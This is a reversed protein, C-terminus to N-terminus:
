AIGTNGSTIDVITHVGPKIIGEQEAVEIIEKAIRDKVSLGPNTFEMKCVVEAVREEKFLKNIRVLKTQGICSSVDEEIRPAGMASPFEQEFAQRFRMLFLDKENQDTSLTDYSAKISLIHDQILLSLKSEM